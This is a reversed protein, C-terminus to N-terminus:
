WISGAIQLRPVQVAQRKSRLITSPVAAILLKASALIFLIFLRFRNQRIQEWGALVDRIVIRVYGGRSGILSMPFYLIVGPSIILAAFFAALVMIKPEMSLGSILVALLGLVGSAFLLILITASMVSIFHAYKLDRHKKLV